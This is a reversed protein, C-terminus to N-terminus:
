KNNIKTFKKIWGINLYNPLLIPIANIVLSAIAFIIPVQALISSWIFLQCWMVIPIGYTFYTTMSSNKERAGQSLGLLFLPILYVMRYDFSSILLYSLFILSLSFLLILARLSKEELVNSLNPGYVIGKRRSHYLFLLVSLFILIGISRFQSSNLVINVHFVQMYTLVKVCIRPIASVGFTRWFGNSVSNALLGDLKGWLVYFMISTSALCILLASFLQFKTNKFKRNTFLIILFFIPYLKLIALFGLVFYSLIKRNAYFLFIALIFFAFLVIEFQGREILLAIPPSLLTIIMLLANQPDRLNLKLAYATLYISIFLLIEFTYGVINTRSENLNFFELIPVYVELLGIKRGWPDCNTELYNVGIQSCTVQATYARLDAFTPKMPSFGFYHWWNQVSVIWYVCNVVIFNFIYPVLQVRKKKNIIKKPNLNNM